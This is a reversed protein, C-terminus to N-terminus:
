QKMYKLKINDKFSLKKSEDIIAQTASIPETVGRKEATLKAVQAKLKTLEAKLDEDKKPEDKPPDGEAPKPNETPSTDDDPKTDTDDSIATVGANKLTQYAQDIADFDAGSQYLKIGIEAGFKQTFKALTEDKVKEEKEELKNNEDAMKKFEGKKKKNEKLIGLLANTNKDRGYPCISIGRVEVNHYITFPGQLEQGNIKLKEHAKVRTSNDDSLILTPSIEWPTGAIGRMIIDYARDGEVLSLLWGDGIWGTQDIKFTSTDIHGIIQMEDHDYDITFRNKKGYDLTALDLVFLGGWDQMISGSNIPRMPVPYLEGVKFEVDTKYQIAM